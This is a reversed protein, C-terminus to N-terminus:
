DTISTITRNKNKILIPQTEREQFQQELLYNYFHTADTNSASDGRKVKRPDSLPRVSTGSIAHCAHALQWQLGAAQKTSKAPDNDVSAGSPM